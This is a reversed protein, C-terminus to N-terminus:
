GAEAYLLHARATTRTFDRWQQSSWGCECVLARWM